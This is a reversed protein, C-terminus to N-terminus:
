FVPLCGQPCAVRDQESDPLGDREQRDITQFRHIRQVGARQGAERALEVPDFGSEHRAAAIMVPLPPLAKELPASMLYRLAAVGDAM